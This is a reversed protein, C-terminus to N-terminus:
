PQTDHRRVVNFRAFSYIAFSFDGEGRGLFGHRRESPTLRPSAEQVGFNQPAAVGRRYPPWLFSRYGCGAEAATPLSPSRFRYGVAVCTSAKLPFKRSPSNSGGGDGGLIQARASEIQMPGRIQEHNSLSVVFPPASVTFPLSRVGHVSHRSIWSCLPTFEM